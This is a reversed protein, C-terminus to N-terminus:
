NEVGSRPLFIGRKRGPLFLNKRGRIKKVNFKYEKEYRERSKEPLLNLIVIRAEEALDQPLDDKSSSLKLGYFFNIILYHYVIQCSVAINNTNSFIDYCCLSTFRIVAVCCSSSIKDYQGM